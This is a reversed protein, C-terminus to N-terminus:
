KYRAESKYNVYLVQKIFVKTSVIYDSKGYKSLYDDIITDINDDTANKHDLFEYFDNTDINIFNNM